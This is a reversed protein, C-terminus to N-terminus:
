RKYDDDDGGGVVVVVVVVLLLLLPPPPPPTTILEFGKGTNSDSKRTGGLLSWKATFAFSLACFL